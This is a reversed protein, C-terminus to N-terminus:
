FTTSSVRRRRTWWFVRSYFPPHFSQDPIHHHAARIAAGRMLTDLAVWATWGCAAPIQFALELRWPPAELRMWACQTSCHVPLGIVFGTTALPGISAVPTCVIQVTHWDSVPGALSHASPWASLWPLFNALSPSSDAPKPWGAGGGPWGRPPEIERHLARKGSKRHWVKNVSFRSGTM